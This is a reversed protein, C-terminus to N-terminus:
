KKKKFMTRDVGCVPCKFDNPMPGKHVYGCVICVYVEEDEIEVKVENEIEKVYTPANKPAKGKVVKHYYSYTMPDLDNEKKADLVRAFFVDHTECEVVKIVECIMYGCINNKVVPINDIIEHEIGDFKDIDRSSYFGFKSIVNADTEESLISVAFKNNIKLAEDTYNLKNISVSIIPNEATIQTVTNVFCGVNKENVKTSIVYMGYSLDQMAKIDM